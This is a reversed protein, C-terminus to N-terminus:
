FGNTELSNFYLTIVIKSIPNFMDEINGNYLNVVYNGGTKEIDWLVVYSGDGAIWDYTYNPVDVIPQSYEFLVRMKVSFDILGGKDEITFTQTGTTQTTTFVKAFVGNLGYTSDVFETATVKGQYSVKFPADSFNDGGVFFGEKNVSVVDSGAGARFEKVNKLVHGEGGEDLKPQVQEVDM